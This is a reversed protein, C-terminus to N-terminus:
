GHYGIQLSCQHVQLRQQLVEVGEVETVLM